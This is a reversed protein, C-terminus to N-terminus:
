YKFFNCKLAAVATSATSYGLEIRRVSPVNANSASLTWKEERQERACFVCTGGPSGGRRNAPDATLQHCPAAARRAPTNSAALQSSSASSTSRYLALVQRTTQRGIGSAPLQSQGAKRLAVVVEAKKVIGDRARSPLAQAQLDSRTELCAAGGGVPCIDLLHLLLCNQALPYVQPLLQTFWLVSSSSSFLLFIISVHEKRKWCM